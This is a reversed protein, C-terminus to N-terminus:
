KSIFKSCQGVYKVNLPETNRVCEEALSGPIFKRCDTSDNVNFLGINEECVEAVSPPILNSLPDNLPPINVFVIVGIVVILYLFGMFTLHNAYKSQEKIIRLLLPSIRFFLSTQVAAESLIMTASIAFPIIIFATIITIIFRNYLEPLVPAISTLTLFFLVGTIITADVQLITGDDFKSQINSIKDPQWSKCNPCFHVNINKKLIQQMQTSCKPCKM